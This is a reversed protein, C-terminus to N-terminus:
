RRKGLGPAGAQAHRDGSFEEAYPTSPDFPPSLMQHIEGDSLAKGHVQLYHRRIETNKRPLAASCLDCPFEHPLGLGKPKKQPKDGSVTQGKKRALTIDRQLSKPNVGKRRAAEVLSPDFPEKQELRSEQQHSGPKGYSTRKSNSVGWENSGLPKVKFQDDRLKAPKPPKRSRTM